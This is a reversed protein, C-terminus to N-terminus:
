TFNLNIIVLHTLQSIIIVDEAVLSVAQLEEVTTTVNGVVALTNSISTTTPSTHVTTGGHPVPEQTPGGGRCVTHHLLGAGGVDGLEVM